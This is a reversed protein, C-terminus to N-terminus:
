RDAPKLAWVENSRYGPKREGGPIIWLDRWVVTPVDGRSIPGEAVATWRDAGPDYLFGDRPFGPHNPGDLKRRTGDDGTVLLLKGGPTV